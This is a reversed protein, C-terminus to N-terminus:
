YCSYAFNRNEKSFSFDSNFFPENKLKRGTPVAHRYFCVENRGVDRGTM